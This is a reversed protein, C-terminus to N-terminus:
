QEFTTVNGTIHLYTKGNYAVDVAGAMRALAAAQILQIAEHRTYGAETFNNVMKDAQIIENNINM